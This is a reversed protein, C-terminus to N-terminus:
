TEKESQQQWRDLRDPLQDPRAVGTTALQEITVSAVLNAVVAAEALEAGACLSTVMGASVSDGAGTPDTEGTIRVGPVQTWEPDSVLMGLAGRTVVVPAGTKQRLRGAAPLLTELAVEEDPLPFERGVAEFQNPKIIVQRYTHIRRRSDAWFIVQPHVSALRILEARLSDTVVGCNPEEVQDMIMVADVQPIVAGVSQLLLNETATSTSTRNKTDYRDHEGALSADTRDRPKLYTPTHRDDVAHLHETHCGLAQLRKELDFGEGDNGRFGIAHLSEVGLAALNSMVTGACGPFTRIDVVQHAVRGTEVSTEELSPELDLYKDLFFDGVVAIRARPFKALLEALRSQSLKARKM